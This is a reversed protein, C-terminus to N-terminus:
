ITFTFTIFLYIISKIENNFVFCILTYKFIICKILKWKKIGKKMISIV